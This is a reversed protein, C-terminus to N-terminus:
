KIFNIIRETWIKGDKTERIKLSGKIVNDYIWIYGSTEIFIEDSSILLRHPQDVAVDLILHYTHMNFVITEEIYQIRVEDLYKDKGIEVIADYNGALDRLSYPFEVLTPLQMQSFLIM